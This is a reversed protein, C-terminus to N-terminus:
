LRKKLKQFDTDKGVMRRLEDPGLKTDDAPFM